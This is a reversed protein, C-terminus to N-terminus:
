NGGRQAFEVYRFLSDPPPGLLTALPRGMINSATEGHPAFTANRNEYSM